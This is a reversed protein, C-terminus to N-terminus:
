RSRKEGLYILLAGKESVIDWHKRCKNPRCPCVPLRGESAQPLHGGGLQASPGRYYTRLSTYSFHYQVYTKQHGLEVTSEERVRVCTYLVLMDRICLAFEMNIEVSKGVGEDLHQPVECLFLSNYSYPSLPRRWERVRVSTISNERRM